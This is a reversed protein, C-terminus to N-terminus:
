IIQFILQDVLQYIVVQPLITSVDLSLGAHFNETHWIMDYDFNQSFPINTFFPNIQSIYNNFNVLRDELYGNTLSYNSILELQESSINNLSSIVNVNNTYLSNIALENNEGNITLSYSSSPISATQPFDAIFRSNSDSIKCFANGWCLGIKFHIYFDFTYDSIYICTVYDVIKTSSRYVQGDISYTFCCNNNSNVSGIILICTGQTQNTDFAGGSLIRIEFRTGGYSVTLRGEKYISEGYVYPIHNVCPRITDTNIGNQYSKIGGILQDSSKDIYTSNSTSISNTNTTIQSQLNTNNSSVTSNTTTLNSNLTSISNSNTTIQSQLNTNNSSVTTSLSSM